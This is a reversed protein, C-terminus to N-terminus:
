CQCSTNEFISASQTKDAFGFSDKIWYGNLWQGKEEGFIYFDEMNMLVTKSLKLFSNVKDFATKNSYRLCNEVNPIEALIESMMRSDSKGVDTKLPYSGEHGMFLNGKIHFPHANEVTITSKDSADRFHIIMQYQWNNRIIKKFEELNSLTRYLFMENKDTNAVVVGYSDSNYKLSDECLQHLNDIIIEQPKYILVCM